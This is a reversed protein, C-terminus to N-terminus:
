VGESLVNQIRVHNIQYKTISNCFSFLLTALVAVSVEPRSSIVEFCMAVPKVLSNNSGLRHQSM